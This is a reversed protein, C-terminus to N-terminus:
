YFHKTIPCEQSNKTIVAYLYAPCVMYLLFIFQILLWAPRLTQLIEMSFALLIADMHKTTHGLIYFNLLLQTSLYVYCKSFPLNKDSFFFNSGCEGYEESKARLVETWVECFQQRSPFKAIIILSDGISCCITFYIYRKSCFHSSGAIQADGDIAVLVFILIVISIKYQIKIKKFDSHVKWGM